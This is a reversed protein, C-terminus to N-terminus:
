TRLYHHYYDYSYDYYNSSGKVINMIEARTTPDAGFGRDCSACLGFLSAKLKTKTIMDNNYKKAIEDSNNSNKDNVNDNIMETTMESLSLYTSRYAHGLMKKNIFANTNRNFSYHNSIIFGMTMMNNIIIMIMIVLLFSQLLIM